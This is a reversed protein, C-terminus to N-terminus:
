YNYFMLIKSCLKGLAIIRNDVNDNNDDDDNNNNNYRFYKNISHENEFARLLKYNSIYKACIVQM